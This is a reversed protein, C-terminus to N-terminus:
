GREREAGNRWWRMKWWGGLAQQALGVRERDELPASRRRRWVRYSRGTGSRALLGTTEDPLPLEENSLMSSSPRGGLLTSRVSLRRSGFPSSLPTLADEELEGWIEDVEAMTTRRTRTAGVTDNNQANPTLPASPFRLSRSMRGSFSARNNGNTNSSMGNLATKSPLKAPQSQSRLRNPLLQSEEDQAPVSSGVEEQNSDSPTFGMGPTLPTQPVSIPLTHDSNLRWSLALVGALLIVTGLSIQLESSLLISLTRSPTARVLLSSLISLRSTQHFYILGDLIAIINYVCFVFPYLISTSCLKLGRHLYYLQTLALTGLGLLIVWSQWRNFQNKRDVITRVLLEVASKAVLLSHASLIGSVCGYAMGRVLRM